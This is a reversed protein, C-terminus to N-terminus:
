TPFFFWEYSKRWAVNDVAQLHVPHLRCDRWYHTQVVDTICGFLPALEKWSNCGIEWWGNSDVCRFKTHRGARGLFIAPNHGAIAGHLIVCNNMHVDQLYANQAKVHEKQLLFAWMMFRMVVVFTERTQRREPNEAIKKLENGVTGGDGMAEVLLISRGTGAIIKSNCFHLFRPFQTCINEFGSWTKLNKADDTQAGDFPTSFKMCIHLEEPLIGDNFVYLDSHQLYKLKLTGLCADRHMGRGVYKYPGEFCAEYSHSSHRMTISFRGKMRLGPLHGNVTHGHFICFCTAWPAETDPSVTFDQVAWTERAVDLWFEKLTKM